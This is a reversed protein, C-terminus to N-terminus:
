RLRQFCVLLTTLFPITFSSLVFLHTHTLPHRVDSQPPASGGTSRDETHRRHRFMCSTVPLKGGSDNVTFIFPPPSSSIHRVPPSAKVNPPRSPELLAAESLAAQQSGCVGGGVNGQLCVPAELAVPRRVSCVAEPSLSFLSVSLSPREEPRRRSMM